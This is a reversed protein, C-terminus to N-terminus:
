QEGLGYILSVAAKNADRDNTTAVLCDGFADYALDMIDQHGPLTISKLDFVEGTSIDVTIIKSLELVCYMRQHKHNLVPNVLLDNETKVPYMDIHENNKLNLKHIYNITTGQAINLYGVLVYMTDASNDIMIGNVSKIETESPEQLTIADIFTDNNDDYCLITNGESVIYLRHYKSAAPRVSYFEIPEDTTITKKYTKNVVDIVVYGNNFGFYMENNFEDYAVQRFNANNSVDEPLDIIYEEGFGGVISAYTITGIKGGLDPYSTSGTFAIEEGNACCIVNIARNNARHERHVIEKVAANTLSIEAVDTSPPTLTPRNAWVGPFYFGNQIYSISGHVSSSEFQPPLDIKVIKSM